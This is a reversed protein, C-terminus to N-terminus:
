LRLYFFLNFTTRSQLEPVIGKVKEQLALVKSKDSNAEHKMLNIQKNQKEMADRMETIEKTMKSELRDQLEGLLRREDKLQGNLANIEDRMEDRIEDRMEDRMAPMEQRATVQAIRVIEDIDAEM